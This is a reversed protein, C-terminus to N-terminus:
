SQLEKRANEVFATMKEKDKWGDTEIGSSVDVAFPHLARIADGVNGPDLGGALFYPRQVAAALSWDFFAGSGTGYYLLIYVASCGSVERADFGPGIQFARILPKKTMRRLTRIYTEDESGHLQALDITGEELLAAVKEPMEDIFVGVAEIPSALLRKLERAKEPSVCRRRGAAFVFGIYDPKLENAAEIDSPRRLGCLKIKTM